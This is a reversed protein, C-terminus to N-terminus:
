RLQVTQQNSVQQIQGYIYNHMKEITISQVNINNGINSLYGTLYGSQNVVAVPNAIVPLNKSIIFRKIGTINTYGTYNTGYFYEIHTAPLVENNTLKVTAGSIKISVIDNRGLGLMDRYIDDNRDFTESQFLYDGNLVDYAEDVIVSNQGVSDTVWIRGMDLASQLYADIDYGGGAEDCDGVQWFILNLCGYVSVGVQGGGQSQGGFYTGVHYINTNNAIGSALSKNSYDNRIQDINSYNEGQTTYGTQGNGFGSVGSSKKSKAGTSNDGCAAMLSLALMAVSLNKFLRKM